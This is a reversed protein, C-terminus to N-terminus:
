PKVSFITGTRLPRPLAITFPYHVVDVARFPARLPSARVAAVAMAGARERTTRAARYEAVVEAPLGEGAAPAVPPLFVRYELTGVRALARLLERTSVESGGHVGPTLTLLAIGVVAAITRAPVERGRM